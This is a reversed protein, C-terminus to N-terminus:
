LQPPNSTSYVPEHESGRGEVHHLAPPDKHTLRPRVMLIALGQFIRRASYRTAVRLLIPDVVHRSVGGGHREGAVLHVLGLGQVVRIGNALLEVNRSGEVPCLGHEELVHLLRSPKPLCRFQVALHVQIAWVQGVELRNRARPLFIHPFEKPAHRTGLISPM